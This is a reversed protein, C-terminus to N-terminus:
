DCMEQEIDNLYESVLESGLQVFSRVKPSINKSAPYVIHIPSMETKWKDLLRVFQGSKVEAGCMYTPLLGIGLGRGVLTKLVNLDNVELKSNIAIEVSQRGNVLNWRDRSVSTFQLCEFNKLDKPSSPVGKKNAYSQSAFPAFYVEGVKKAILSSDKLTGARIALDFGEGVLNMRRDSFYVEVQVQPYQKIYKELIRPVIVTGLDVPATIRLVGRPESVGKAIEDLAVRVQELGARAQEYFIRGEDTVFLKRTTRKILSVGLRKELESLRLSVTSKPMNLSQAAKTFSGTEVIKIYIAIENLDM